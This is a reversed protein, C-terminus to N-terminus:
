GLGSLFRFIFFTTKEQALSSLIGCLANVFMAVMLTKRRGFADGLSGWFYGGILMGIFM